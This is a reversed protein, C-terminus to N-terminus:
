YKIIFKIVFMGVLVWEGNDIFMVIDGFGSYFIDLSLGYYFWLGFKLVCKQFYFLVLYENEFLFVGYFLNLYVFDM